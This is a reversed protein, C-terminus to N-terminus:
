AAVLREVHACVLCFREAATPLHPIHLHENPTNSQAFEITGADILSFFMTLGENSLAEGNPCTFAVVLERQTPTLEEFRAKNGQSYFNVPPYTRM